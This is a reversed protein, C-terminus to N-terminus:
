TPKLPPASGSGPVVITMVGSGISRLSSMAATRSGSASLSPKPSSVWSQAASSGERCSSQAGGSVVIVFCGLSLVLFFVAVNSNLEESVPEVNSHLRSPVANAAQVEGSLRFTL